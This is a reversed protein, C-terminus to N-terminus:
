SRRPEAHRTVIPNCNCDGPDDTDYMRCWDDHQYVLHYVRGGETPADLPMQPLHRIYEEYLTQQRNNRRRHAGAARRQHRNM